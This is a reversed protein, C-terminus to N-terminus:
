GVRESVPFVRGRQEVKTKIGLSGLFNRLDEGSFQHLASYVFKGNGPINEIMENINASNTLNCRGGGTILMKKGLCNNKELLLVRAGLTVSRAAAMM